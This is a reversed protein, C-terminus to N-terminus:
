WKQREKKLASFSTTDQHVELGVEGGEPIAMVTMQLYEGTWKAVRFKDNEKTLEEIDVVYPQKGHDSLDM